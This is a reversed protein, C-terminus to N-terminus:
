AVERLKSTGIWLSAVTICQGGVAESIIGTHTVGIVKYQGNYTTEQSELRVIQGVTLRPEFLMTVEVVADCRKPTKLLGTDANIVLIDGKTGENHKLINAREGDIFAQGSTGVMGNIAQWPGGCVSLGRSASGSFDGVKGLLINPMDKIMDKFINKVDTQAPWTRSTFGNIIGHLGDMADLTTVNEVGQRESSAMRLGGRFVIPANDEYGAKLVIRRYTTTDIRDQYIRRRTDQSLNTIGFTGTNASALTNRVVNFRLTLPPRIVVTEQTAANVEISLEYTRNFKM